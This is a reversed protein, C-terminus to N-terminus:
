GETNIQSSKASDHFCRQTDPSSELFMESPFSFKVSSPHYRGILQPDQVSSFPSLPSLVVMWRERIGSQPGHSRVNSRSHRGGM